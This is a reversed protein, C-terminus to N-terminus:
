SVNIDGGGFSSVAAARVAKPKATPKAVDLGSDELVSKWVVAGHERSMFGLQVATALSQSMNFLLQGIVSLEEMAAKNIM